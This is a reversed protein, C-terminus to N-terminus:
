CQEHPSDVIAAVEEPSLFQVEYDVGLGELGKYFGRLHNRSGCLLNEYTAIIAEEDTADIAERLDVMDLEEIGAGVRLAAELSPEGDASLELYLAALDPNVFVGVSDDVIPDEIEYRAMLEAVADMHRQESQPVNVLQQADWRESLTLYVDRALKEEERIWQMTAVEDASLARGEELAEAPEDGPADCALAGLGLGLILASSPLARLLRNQITM